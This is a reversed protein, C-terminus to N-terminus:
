LKIQKKVGSYHNTPNAGAGCSVGLVTVWGLVLSALHQLQFKIFATYFYKVLAVLIWQSPLPEEKADIEFLSHVISVTPQQCDRDMM